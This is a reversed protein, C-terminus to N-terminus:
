LIEKLSYSAYKGTLRPVGPKTVLYNKIDIVPASVPRIDYILCEYRYSKSGTEEEEDRSYQYWIKSLSLTKRDVSLRIADVMIEAAAMDISVLFTGSESTSDVKIKGYRLLLSDPLSIAETMGPSMRYKKALKLYNCYHATKEQPDLELFLGGQCVVLKENNSDLYDDGTKILTGEVQDAPSSGNGEYVSIRYRYQVHEMRVAKGLRQLLSVPGSQAGANWCAAFMGLLICTAIKLFKM